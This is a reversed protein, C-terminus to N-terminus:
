NGWRFSPHSCFIIKPHPRIVMKAPRSEQLSFDVYQALLPGYPDGRVGPCGLQLRARMDAVVTVKRFTQWEAVRISDMGGSGEAQCGFGKLLQDRGIKWMLWLSGGERDTKSGEEGLKYINPSRLAHGQTM